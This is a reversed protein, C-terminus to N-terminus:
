KNAAVPNRSAINPELTVEFSQSLPWTFYLIDVKSWTASDGCEYNFVGRPSLKHRLPALGSHPSSSSSISMQGRM